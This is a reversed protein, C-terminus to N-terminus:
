AGLGAAIFEQCWAKADLEMAKLKQIVVQNQLPPIGADAMLQDAFARQEDPILSALYEPTATEGGGQGEYKAPMAFDVGYPKDGVHEDIWDLEIELREPEYALAGLKGVLKEAQNELQLIEVRLVGREGLDQAKDRARGLVDRSGELGKDITTKIRDWFDM